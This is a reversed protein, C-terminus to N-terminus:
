LEAECWVDGQSDVVAVSTIADPDVDITNVWSADGGLDFPVLRPPQGGSGIRLAYTEGPEAYREIEDAWGPMTLFLAASPEPQLVVKGVVDGTPTRMDATALAPPTSRGVGLALAAIALCTALALGALARRRPRPRPAPATASPTLSAVVREEFGPPPDVPPALPLLLDADAALASVLQWCPACAELHALAAARERGDLVELALEPAVEALGACDMPTV